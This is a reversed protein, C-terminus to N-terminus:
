GPVTQVAMFLLKLPCALVYLLQDLLHLVQHACCLVQGPGLATKRVVKNVEFKVANARILYIDRWWIVRQSQCKEKLSIIFQDDSAAKLLHPFQYRLCVCIM